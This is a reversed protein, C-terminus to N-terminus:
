TPRRIPSQSLRDRRRRHVDRARRVGAPRRVVRTRPDHLRPQHPHRRADAAARTDDMLAVAGVDFLADPVVKGLVRFMEVIGGLGALKAVEDWYRDGVTDVDTAVQWGDDPGATVDAPRPM